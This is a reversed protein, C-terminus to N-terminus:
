FVDQRQEHPEYYFNKKKKIGLRSLKAPSFGIFVPLGVSNQLYYAQKKLRINKIFAHKLVHLDIEPPKTEANRLRRNYGGSVRSFHLYVMFFYVSKKTQQKIESM